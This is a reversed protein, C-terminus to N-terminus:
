EWSESVMSENYSDYIDKTIPTSTENETQNSDIITKINKKSIKDNIKKLLEIRDM